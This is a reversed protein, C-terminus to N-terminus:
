RFHLTQLMQEFIPEISKWESSPAICALYFLGEPRSITVLADTEAEGRYPSQSTLTTLLGTQGDVSIGRQNSERMRGNESQLQRILAATDRRLDLRDGQPLYYSIIMGYGVQVAGNAGQFLADRPAITVSPSNQDGFVQWNDPYRISFSSGIYDVFRSSPRIAPPGQPHQDSYSGRLEGRAPLHLVVDKIHEFQGSDTKYQRQPLQRIEDEVARVRNGPNPHDSLFQSVTSEKGAKAELKEFFRAMEIPNYGADAMILAGTYDAQSEDSRSFKLLVSNAGLGIGLRALQGLLSGGTFAGLLMAPLQILNSKSAQNTGHRLAVHAMEHALVGALQAENDAAAITGTNIYVPGGPLSFANINKDAILGFTYPWNGAYKSQALREGLSKLYAAVETNHVVPMTREVQTRTEKGLQVDQQTSFLNFGPKPPNIAASATIAFAIIVPAVGYMRM